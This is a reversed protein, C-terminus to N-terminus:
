GELNSSRGWSEPPTQEAAGIFLNLAETALTGLHPPVREDDCRVRAV